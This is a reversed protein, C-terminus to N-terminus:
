ETPDPSTTCKPMSPPCVPELLEKLSNATVEQSVPERQEEEIAAVARLVDPSIERAGRPAIAIAELAAWWDRDHAEVSRAVAATDFVSIHPQYRSFGHLFLITIEPAKSIGRLRYSIRKEVPFREILSAPRLPMPILLVELEGPGDAAGVPGPVLVVNSDTLLGTAVQGAVRDSARRLQVSVRLDVPVATVTRM